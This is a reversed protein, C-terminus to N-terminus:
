TYPCPRPPGGGAGFTSVSAQAAGRLCALRSHTTRSLVPHSHVMCCPGPRRHLQLSLMAAHKAGSHGECAAWAGCRKCHEFLRGWKLTTSSSRHALSTAASRLPAAAASWCLPRRLPLFRQRAWRAPPQAAGTARDYARLSTSTSSSSNLAIGSNCPRPLLPAPPGSSCPPQAESCCKPRQSACHPSFPVHHTRLVVSLLPTDTGAPM